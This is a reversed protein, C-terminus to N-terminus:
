NEKLDAKGSINEGIQSKIFWNTGYIVCLTSCIMIALLMIIEWLMPIKTRFLIYTVLLVIALILPIITKLVNNLRSYKLKYNIGCDLETINIGTLSFKRMANSPYEINKLVKAPNESYVVMAHSAFTAKRMYILKSLKNLANYFFKKIGKYDKKYYVITDPTTLKDTLAKIKEFNDLQRIVVINDKKCKSIVANIINETDENTDVIFNKVNNQKPVAKSSVYLLEYDTYNNQLFVNLSNLDIQNISDVVVFSFSM